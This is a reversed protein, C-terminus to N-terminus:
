AADDTVGPPAFALVVARAVGVRDLALVRRFAGHAPLTALVSFRDPSAVASHYV